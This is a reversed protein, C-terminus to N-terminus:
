KASKRARFCRTWDLDDYGVQIIDM